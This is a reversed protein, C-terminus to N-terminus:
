KADIELSRIWDRLEVAGTAELYHILDKGLCDTRRLDAGAEILTLILSRDNSAGTQLGTKAYMLPTTGNRGCANPDAGRGLLAKVVEHQQNFAAVILPTWGHVTRREILTPFANLQAAVTDVQGTECASILTRFAQEIVRGSRWHAFTRITERKEEATMPDNKQLRNADRPDLKGQDRLEIFRRLARIQSQYNNHQVIEPSDEAGVLTEEFFFIDGADVRGDIFHATAGMPCQRKITYFFADLGSTEPILGPHINLIGEPFLNIISSKLIRAGAIVALSIGRAEVEYKIRHLDNHETEVFDFGLVRCVTATDYPKANSLGTPFFSQSSGHSLKRWPAALVLVNQFGALALEFLFDQSKRHSFAYAFVAICDRTKM